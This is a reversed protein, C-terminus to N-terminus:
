LSNTSYTVKLMGNSQLVLKITISDTSEEWINGKIIIETDTLEYNHPIFGGGESYYLKGEFVISPQAPDTQVSNFNRDIVDCTKSDFWLASGILMSGSVRLNGVYEDTTSLNTKPNLVSTAGCVTCTGNTYSHDGM